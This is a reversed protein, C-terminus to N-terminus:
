VELNEINVYKKAPGRGLGLILGMEEWRPLLGRAYRVSCRAKKAIEEANNEGDCADYVRKQKDTLELERKLKEIRPRIQMCLLKAILDLREIVERNNKMDM